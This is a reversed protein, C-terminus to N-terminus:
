FLHGVHGLPSFGGTFFHERVTGTVTEHRSGVNTLVGVTCVQSYTEQSVVRIGNELTTIL